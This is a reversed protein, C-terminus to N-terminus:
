QKQEIKDISSEINELVKLSSQYNELEKLGPSLSVAGVLKTLKEVKEQYKPRSQEDCNALIYLNKRLLDREGLVTKIAGMSKRVKKLRLPNILQNNKSNERESYLKNREKLLVFWLKHLDSFSKGRLDSARWSRGAVPFTGKPYKHEFLDKLGGSGINNKVLQTTEINENINNNNNNNNVDTKFRKLVNGISNSHSFYNTTSKCINFRLSNYLLSNM